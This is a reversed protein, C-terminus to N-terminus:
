NDKFLVGIGLWLSSTYEVHRYDKKIENWLKFCGTNNVIDHFAVVKCMPGYNEWDAKVGEYSHDGDIFGFDFPGLSRVKEILAANRSNGLFLNADFGVEGLKRMSERLIPEPSPLDGYGGSYPLDVAVVRSKPEMHAAICQMSKGFRSGIELASRCGKVHQLMALFETADQELMVGFGPTGGEAEAAATKMCRQLFEPDILQTHAVVRLAYTIAEERSVAAAAERTVLM